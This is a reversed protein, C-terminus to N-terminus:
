KMEGLKQKLEEKLNNRARRMLEASFSDLTIRLHSCLFDNITHTQFESLEIKPFIDEPYPNKINEILEIFEQNQNLLAQCTKCLEGNFENCFSKDKDVRNIYKGCGKLLETQTLM